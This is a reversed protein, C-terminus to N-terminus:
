KKVLKYGLQKAMTELEDLKEQKANLPAGCHTCTWGSSKAQNKTLRHRSDASCNFLPNGQKSYPKKPLSYTHGFM